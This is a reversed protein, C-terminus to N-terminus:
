IECSDKLIKKIEDALREVWPHALISEHNGPIEVFEVDSKVMKNWYKENLRPSETEEAKIIFTPTKIIGRIRYTEKIVKKLHAEITERDRVEGKQMDCSAEPKTEEKAIASEDMYKSKKYIGPSSFLKEKAKLVWLIIDPIFAAGDISIYKGIKEKQEELVRTIEYAIFNGICYGVIIYPGESQVQKIEKIYDEVMEDITQALSCSGDLGKLQIGYVQCDGELLKALDKYGYISGHIPHLIFVNEGSKSKNLKQVSKLKNKLEKENIYESLEEITKNVFLDAMKLEIGIENNILSVMRIINISNGGLEFFSDKIGIKDVGLVEQWIRFLKEEIENRPAEYEVGTGISGDPEPLAKRDVKGSTTLPMKKMQVFYSPIMYDPLQDLLHRRLEGVTLERDVVIYACLYKGDGKEERAIVVAEKIDSHKLLQNEIEGLEIRFGRIKVQQDIRGFFEINGDPLWKTLDGTKYMREGQVFPNPIFKEATLEPKNLYGRALGEGGICLEGAAGIPQLNNNKDVIYAKVNQMPRGIPVNAAKEATEMNELSYNTAYITIETPGYINQLSINRFTSNLKSVLEKSIAEGAVLVYKLNEINKIVDSSVGNLFMNLMSPVFNVHTISEDKIKKIIAQPDKEGGRELIVLRGAGIIWGFLETVSVDFTYSTKLLYSGTETLPYEKQLATLINMVSKHEIMVGKPKGTSGSTYIVYALNDTSNVTELNSSNGTYLQEDDLEIVEGKFATKGRLHKQTLLIGAGSDELMYEIRDKPYEPDIPLYAGGAKLIGMIGIIMELSREVMIGVISDPVVGKERLVRALQNARENLERYTLQSDEYVVAINDPTKDAQEEFLEHITKNKPYEAYTDNFEYLLKHREEEDLLEIESIRKDTNEAINKLANRLCRAMREITEKSFLKTSYQVSISLKEEAELAEIMIDFKSIRNEIDYPKVSIGEIAIEGMDMNQMAFMVDFVPNRSMDRRINLKEVLEEFQYYQNEYARLANRKVEEIFERVTKSGEPYNRMALTNVFMGMINELDAHPRGAIPSGVVIDEQRSYKSLVINFGSLLVMYMTAGTEKVIRRLGETVKRELEFHIRGGEFSQIAPRPYDTLLSLVPIEGEFAKLWYEEQKKMAESNLM